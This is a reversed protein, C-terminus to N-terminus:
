PFGNVGGSNGSLVNDIAYSSPAYSYMRSKPMFGEIMARLPAHGWLCMQNYDHDFEGNEQRAKENARAVIRRLKDFYVASKAIREEGIFKVIGVVGNAENFLAPKVKSDDAFDSVLTQEIEAPDVELGNFKITFYFDYSKEM